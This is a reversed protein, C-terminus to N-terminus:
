CRIYRCEGAAGHAFTSDHHGAATRPESHPKRNNRPYEGRRPRVVLYKVGSSTYPGVTVSSGSREESDYECSHANTSSWSLTATGTYAAISTPSVSASMTVPNVPEYRPVNPNPNVPPKPPQAQVAISAASLLSAALYLVPPRAFTSLSVKLHDPRIPNFPM